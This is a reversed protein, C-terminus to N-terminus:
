LSLISSTVVIRGNYVTSDVGTKYLKFDKISVIKFGENTKKIFSEIEDYSGTLSIHFDVPQVKYMDFTEQEGRQVKSIEIELNYKKAEEELDTIFTVIESESLFKSKIVNEQALINQEEKQLKQLSDVGKKNLSEAYYTKVSKTKLSIQYLSYVVGSCLLICITLAILFLASTKTKM